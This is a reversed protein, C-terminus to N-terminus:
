CHWFEVPPSTLCLAAASLSLSFITFASAKAPFTQGRFGVFMRARISPLSARHMSSLKLEIRRAPKLVFPM